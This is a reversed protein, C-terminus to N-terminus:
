IQNIKVINNDSDVIKEISFSTGGYEGHIYYLPRNKSEVLIRSIYESIISLFLFLICFMFLMTVMLSTWGPVMDNTLLKEIVLEIAILLSLFSISISALSVYRLPKNSFAIIADIALASQERFSLEEHPMWESGYDIVVGDLKYGVYAYLLRLYRNHEKLRCISNVMRRSLVRYDSADSHINLDTWQPVLRYFIRSGLSYLINKKKGASKRAYVMDYGDRARDVLCAIAEPPDCRDSSMLVIYDGIAHDLGASLAIQSTYHRSLVILRINDNNNVISQIKEAYNDSPLNDVLILEYNAFQSSLVSITKQIYGLQQGRKRGLVIIVSIINDKNM